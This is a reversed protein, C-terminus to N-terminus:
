ERWVLKLYAEPRFQSRTDAATFEGHGGGILNEGSLSLELRPRLHWGCRLDLTTYGPVAPQALAGVHRLTLDLESRSGVDVSSRLIWWLGPNAGAALAPATADNSGPQLELDQRLRSVGANIRWPGMPQLMLWAEAGSLSGRMGNGYSVFTFSPDIEQTRLHSYMTHFLTASFQASEALRGRYGAEYDDALESVVTPGGRLLDPPPAGPFYPVYIDHDLRSPARVTRAASTWLLQDLAAKWAFRATPLFETGTYDNREIRAGLTLKLDDRLAIEDQAFANSWHQALSPPLLAVYISNTVRDIGYRYGAGVVVANVGLPSASYQFQADILDQSDAFTPPVTRGTHDYVLQMSMAAGDDMQREWTGALDGGRTAINGLTLTDGTIYISGPRPQGEIGSYVDGKVMLSEQGAAWDARFGGLRRQDADNADAGAQNATHAFDSQTAFVRYSAQTGLAAGYRVAAHEQRNGAGAAALTGQTEAASRTIINIVGNVANVGWLTGGPGSVVEIREVDELMVDQVDWFVGSFLPSYVSRGDILVLLKNAATGNFGRASIAYGVASIRAVQLNPALRLAEPLSTAGSRRIDEATIVFVSSPADALRVARKASSIITINALEEFSLDALAPALSHAPGPLAALAALALLGARLRL